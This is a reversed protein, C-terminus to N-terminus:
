RGTVGRERMAPRDRPRSGIVSTPHGLVDDPAQEDADRRQQADDEDDEGDGPQQGPVGAPRRERLPGGLLDAGGEVLAEPQVLGDGDLEDEVEPLEQPAVEPIGDPLTAGDGLDEDLPQGRGDLQGEVRQEERGDDPTVSPRM